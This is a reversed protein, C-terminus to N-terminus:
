GTSGLSDGARIAIFFLKTVVIVFKFLLSTARGCIYSMDYRVPQSKGYEKHGGKGGATGGLFVTSLPVHLSSPVGMVVPKISLPMVVINVVFAQEM